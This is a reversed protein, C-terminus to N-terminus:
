ERKKSCPEGVLVEIECVIGGAVCALGQIVCLVVTCVCKWIYMCFNLWYIIWYNTVFYIILSILGRVYLPPPNSAVGRGMLNESNERLPYLMLVQHKWYSNTWGECMNQTLNPLPGNRHNHSAFQIFIARANIWKIVSMLHVKFSLVLAKTTDCEM